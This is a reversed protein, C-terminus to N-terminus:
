MRGGQDTELSMVLQVPCSIRTTDPQLIVTRIQNDRGLRLDEIRAKKWMHRPKKEEQLLVIDGVKFKPGQRSPKTVEPLEETTPPVGKAM